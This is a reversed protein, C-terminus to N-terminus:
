FNNHFLESTDLIEIIDDFHDLNELTARDQSVEVVAKALMEYDVLCSNENM